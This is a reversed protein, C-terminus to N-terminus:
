QLNRRSHTYWFPVSSHGYITPRNNQTRALSSAVGNEFYKEWTLSRSDQGMGAVIRHATSHVITPAMWNPDVVANLLRTPENMM